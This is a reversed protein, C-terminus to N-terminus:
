ICIYGKVCIYIYRLDIIKPKYVARFHGRKGNLKGLEIREKNGCGKAVSCVRSGMGCVYKDPFFSQSRDLQHSTDYQRHIKKKKKLSM